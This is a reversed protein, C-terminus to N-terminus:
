DFLGSCSHGVEFSSFLRESSRGGVREAPEASSLNIINKNDKLFFFFFFFFFLFFFFFISESFINQCKM